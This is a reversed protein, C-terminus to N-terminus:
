PTHGDGSTNWTRTNYLCLYIVGLILLSLKNPLCEHLPSPSCYNPLEFMLHYVLAQTKQSM